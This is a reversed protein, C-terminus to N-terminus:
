LLLLLLFDPPLLMGLLKNPLINILLLYLALMVGSGMGMNIRCRIRMMMMRGQSSRVRNGTYVYRVVHHRVSLCVSLCMYMYMYLSPRRMRIAWQVVLKVHVSGILLLPVVDLGLAFAVDM